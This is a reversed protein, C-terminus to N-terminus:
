RLELESCRRHNFFLITGYNKVDQTRNSFIDKKMVIVYKILDFIFAHNFVIILNSKKLLAM